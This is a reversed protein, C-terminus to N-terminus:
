DRADDGRQEPPPDGQLTHVVEVLEESAEQLQEALASARGILAAQDRESTADRRRRRAKNM